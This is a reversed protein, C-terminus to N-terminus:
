HSVFVENFELPLRASFEAVYLHFNCRSVFSVCQCLLCYFMPVYNFVILGSLMNFFAHVICLNHM